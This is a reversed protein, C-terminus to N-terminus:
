HVCTYIIHQTGDYSVGNHFKELVMTVGHQCWKSVVSTIMMLVMANKIDNDTLNLRILKRCKEMGEVESVRNGELTVIQPMNLM